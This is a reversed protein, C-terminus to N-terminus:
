APKAYYVYVKRDEDLETSTKQWEQGLWYQFDSQLNLVIDLNEKFEFSTVEPYYSANDLYQRLELRLGRGPRSSTGGFDGSANCTKRVYIVYAALGSACSTKEYEIGDKIFYDCAFRAAIETRDIDDYYYLLPYDQGADLLRYELRAL